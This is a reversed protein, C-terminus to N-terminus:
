RLTVFFCCCYTEGIPPVALSIIIIIIMIIIFVLYIVSFLLYKDNININNIIYYCLIFLM